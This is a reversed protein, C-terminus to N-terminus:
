EFFKIVRYQFKKIRCNLKIWNWIVYITIREKPNKMALEMHHKTLNWIVYITIREKPNKMALEM